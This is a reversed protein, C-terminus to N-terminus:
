KQIIWFGLRPSREEPISKDGGAGENPHMSVNMGGGKLQKEMKKEYEFDESSLFRGFAEESVGRIIVQAM